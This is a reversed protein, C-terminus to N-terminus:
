PGGPLIGPRKGSGRSLVEVRADYVEQISERTIVEEPSGEAWIKGEKLLLIRQAYQSLLNIEHSVALVTIKLNQNLEKLLDFIGIQHKIDLYVTPEDLLLIKPKQALARAVIVRQREGGSLQYLRRNAFELTETMRLAERAISLDGAGELSLGGLHPSRGMLVVELATFPFSVQTAQPVVAAIRAIGRPSFSSMERGQLSIRGGLPKLVGSLLKILTTKGSGNPGLVGLFGGEEVKFSVERIVERGNYAFSVGDVNIDPNNKQLLM